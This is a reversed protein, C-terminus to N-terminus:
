SFVKLFIQFLMSIQVKRSTKERSIQYLINSHKELCV